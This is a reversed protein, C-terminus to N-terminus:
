SFQALLNMLREPFKVAFNLSMELTPLCAYDSENLLGAIAIASGTAIRAHRSITDLGTDDVSTSGYAVLDIPNRGSHRHVEVGTAYWQSCGSGPRQVDSTKQEALRSRRPRSMGAHPAASTGGM